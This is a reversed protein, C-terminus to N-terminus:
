KNKWIQPNRSTHLVALVLIIKNEEDIIYHLMYPFVNLVATRVNNYRVNCAKPNRKILRVKERVQATFRKGLGIQKKNYWIAAKRIDEKSHPLVILKYM